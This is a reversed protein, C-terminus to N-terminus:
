RKPTDLPERSMYLADNTPVFRREDDDYRMTQSGTKDASFNHCGATLALACAAAFLIRRMASAGSQHFFRASVVVFL